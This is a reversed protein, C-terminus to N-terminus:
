RRMRLGGVKQFSNLRIHYVLEASGPVELDANGEEGYGYQPQVEVRASEKSKMEGIAKEVGPM